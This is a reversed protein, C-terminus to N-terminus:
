NALTLSWPPLNHAPPSISWTWTPSHCASLSLAKWHRSPLLWWCQLHAASSARCTQIFTTMERLELFPLSSLDCVKLTARKVAQWGGQLLGHHLLNCLLLRNQASDQLVKTADLAVALRQSRGSCLRSLLRALPKSTATTDSNSLTLAVSRADCLITDRTFRSVQLLSRRTEPSCKQFILSLVPAPLTDLGEATSNRQGPRM